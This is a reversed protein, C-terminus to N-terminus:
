RQQIGYESRRLEESLAAVAGEDKRCELRYVPVNSVLQAALETMKSASDEAWPYYACQNLLAAFAARKAPVSVRNVAAQVPLVVARLPASERLCIGSTGAYFIGHVTRRKPHVLARDGNIVRAGAYREWLAAQTSKGAGSPGSFLIGEGQRTVIYSSHLILMGFDALLDFLGASELIVRASLTRRYEQSFLLRTTDGQRVALSSYRRDYRQMLYLSEGEHWRWLCANQVAGPPPDPIEDCFHVCIMHAAAGPQARFPECMPSSQWPETGSLCLTVGGFAYFERYM